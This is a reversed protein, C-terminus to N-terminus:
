GTSPLRLPGSATAHRAHIRCFIKQAPQREVILRRQPPHESWLDTGIPPGLQGGLDFQENAQRASSATPAAVGESRSATSRAEAAPAVVSSITPTRTDRPGVIPRALRTAAAGLSAIAM